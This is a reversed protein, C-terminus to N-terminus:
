ISRQIGWQFYMPNLLYLLFVVKGWAVFLKIFINIIPKHGSIFISFFYSAIRSNKIVKGISRPLGNGRLTLRYEIFRQSLQPLSACRRIRKTRAGGSIPGHRETRSAFRPKQDGRGFSIWWLGSRNSHASKHTNKHAYTWFFSKGGRGVKGWM